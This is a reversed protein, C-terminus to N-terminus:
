TPSGNENFLGQADPLLLGTRRRAVVAGHELNGARWRYLHANNGHQASATPTTVFTHTSTLVKDGSGAELLRLHLHFAATSSSLAAADGIGIKAALEHEFADLHLGVPAIWNSDFADIPLETEADGMHAAPFFIREAHPM